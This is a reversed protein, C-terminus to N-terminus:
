DLRFLTPYLVANIALYAGGHGILDQTHIQIRQHRLAAQLFSPKSSLLLLRGGLAGFPYPSRAM